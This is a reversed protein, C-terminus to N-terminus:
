FLNLTNYCDIALEQPAREITGVAFGSQMYDTGPAALLSHHEGLDGRPTDSNRHAPRLETGGVM